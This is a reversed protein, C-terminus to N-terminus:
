VNWEPAICKWGLKLFQQHWAPDVVYQASAVEAGFLGKVVQFSKCTVDVNDATVKVLNRVSIRLLLYHRYALELNAQAMAVLDNRPAIGLRQGRELPLEANVDEDRAVGVFKLCIFM